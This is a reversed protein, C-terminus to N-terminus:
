IRRRRAALIMAAGVPLLVCGTFVVAGLGIAGTFPLGRGSPSTPASAEALVEFAVEVSGSTAGTLTVTHRGPETDVAIVWSFSVSGTADAPASGIEVPDSRMVATVQDGPQFGVASVTQTEGLRITARGVAATVGPSTGTAHKSPESTPQQSPDATPQGSPVASPEASPGPSPGESPETSPVTSPEASPEAGPEESPEESPEASPETSPPAPQAFVLEVEALLVDGYSVLLTFTGAESSAVDVGVNGVLSAGVTTSGGLKEGKAPNVLFAGTADGLDFVVSEGERSIPNGFGDVLTLRVSYVSSSDAAVDVGTVALTAASQTPAVPGAVFEVAVPSGVPVAGVEAKVQYLGAVELSFDTWTAAGAESLVTQGLTWEDLGVLRYSFVVEVPDAFPDCTGDRLVVTPAYSDVGAVAETGSSVTPVEFGSLALDLAPAPTEPYLGVHPAEGWDAPLAADQSTEGTVLNVASFGAPVTFDAPASITISREGGECTLTYTISDVDWSGPRSSQDSCPAWFNGLAGLATGAPKVEGGRRLVGFRHEQNEPDNGGDRLDYWWVGQVADVGRLRVYTEILRRAQEDETVCAPNTEKTCSAWGVESVYVPLAQGYWTEIQDAFWEVARDVHRPRNNGVSGLYAYPHLSVGDVQVGLERMYGLTAEMFTPDTGSIAGVIFPTGPALKRVIPEVEKALLAYTLPCANGQEPDYPCDDGWRYRPNSTREPYRSTLDDKEWQGYIWGAYGNWENWLEIGARDGDFATLVYEVYEAFKQREFDTSPFGQVWPEAGYDLIQLVNAEPAMASWGATRGALYARSGASGGLVGTASLTSRWMAEVRFSDVKWDEIALRVQEVTDWGPNPDLHTLLGTYFQDSKIPEFAEQGQGLETPEEGLDVTSANGGGLTTTLGACGLEPRWDVPVSYIFVQQPGYENTQFTLDFGYLAGTIQPFLTGIRALWSETAEFPGYGDVGVEGCRGGVTFYLRGPQNVQAWDFSWADGAVQLVGPSPSTLGPASAYGAAQHTTPRFFATGVVQGDKLASVKFDRGWSDQFDAWGTGSDGGITYSAVAPDAPAYPATVWAGSSDKIEWAYGEVGPLDTVATVTQGRYAKGELRLGFSDFTAGYVGVERGAWDATVPTGSPLEGKEGLLDVLTGGAAQAQQLQGLTADVFVHRGGDACDIQFYNNDTIDGSLNACGKWFGALAAYAYAAPKYDGVEHQDLSGVRKILGYGNENVNAVGNNYVYDELLDYWWIGAVGDVARVRVYAKVLLEAQREPPFAPDGTTYGLESIFIPLEQGYWQTV